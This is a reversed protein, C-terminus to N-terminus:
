GGGNDGTLIARALAAWKKNTEHAELLEGQGHDALILGAEHNLRKMIMPIGEPCRAGVANLVNIIYDLPNSRGIPDNSQVPMEDVDPDNRWSRVAQGTCKVGRRRLIAAINDSEGREIADHLIEWTEMLEIAKHPKQTPISSM